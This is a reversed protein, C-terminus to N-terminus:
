VNAHFERLCSSCSKKSYPLYLTSFSCSITMVTFLKCFLVSDISLSRVPWSICVNCTVCITGSTMPLIVNMCLSFRYTWPTSSLCILNYSHSNHWRWTKNSLIPMRLVPCKGGNNNGGVTRCFIVAFAM